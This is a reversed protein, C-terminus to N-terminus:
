FSLLGASGPEDNAKATKRHAEVDDSTDADDTAKATKRHAEVDEDKPEDQEFRDDSM